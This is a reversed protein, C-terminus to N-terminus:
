AAFLVIRWLSSVAGSKLGLHSRSLSVIGHAPKWGAIPHTTGGWRIDVKLSKRYM